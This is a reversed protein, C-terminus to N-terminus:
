IYFRKHRNRMVVPWLLYRRELPSKRILVKNIYIIKFLFGQSTFYTNVWPVSMANVLCVVIGLFNSFTKSYGM